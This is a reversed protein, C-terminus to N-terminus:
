RTEHGSGVLVLVPCSVLYYGTEPSSGTGDVNQVDGRSMCICTGRSSALQGCSNELVVPMVFLIQFGFITFIAIYTTRATRKTLQRSM